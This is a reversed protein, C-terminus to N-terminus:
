KIDYNVEFTALKVKELIKNFLNSFRTKSLTKNNIIMIKM